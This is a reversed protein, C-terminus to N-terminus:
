RFDKVLEFINNIIRDPIVDSDKPLGIGEFDNWISYIGIERPAKVDWILNDGIFWVDAETMDMHELAYRYIKENPKGFGLETEIFIYDFYRDLDFKKIKFRQIVAEGNTILALKIGKNRFLELADLARPFLKLAHLRRESYTDAVNIVDEQPLRLKEFVTSIIERRATKQDKRGKENKKVDEWYKLRIDTITDYLIQPDIKDNSSCYEACIIKWTDNATGKLCVITDDLDFILAKPLM